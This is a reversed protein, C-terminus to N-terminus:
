QEPCWWTGLMGKDIVHMIIKRGSCHSLPIRKTAGMKKLKDVKETNFTVPGMHVMLLGEARSPVQVAKLFAAVAVLLFLLDGLSLM